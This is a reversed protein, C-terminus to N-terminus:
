FTNSKIFMDVQNDALTCKKGVLAFSCHLKCVEVTRMQM